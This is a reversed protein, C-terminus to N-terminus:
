GSFGPVVPSVRSWRETECSSSRSLHAAIRRGRLIGTVVAEQPGDTVQACVTHAGIRAFPNDRAALVRCARGPRPVTGGAPGCRLRYLHVTSSDETGNPYVSIALQTAPTGAAAGSALLVAALVFLAIASRV